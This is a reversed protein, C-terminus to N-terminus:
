KIIIVKASYLKQIRVCRKYIAPREIFFRDVAEWIFVWAVIEMIIDLYYNNFLDHFFVLGVTLTSTNGCIKPKANTKVSRLHRM